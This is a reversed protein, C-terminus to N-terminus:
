KFLHNKDTQVSYTVLASDIPKGEGNLQIWCVQTGTTFSILPRGVMDFFYALDKYNKYPTEMDRVSEYTAKIIVRFHIGGSANSIIDCMQRYENAIPILEYSYDRPSIAHANYKFWEYIEPFNTEYVERPVEQPAYNM